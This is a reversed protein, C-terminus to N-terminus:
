SSATGTQPVNALRLGGLEADFVVGDMFGAWAPDEDITVVANLATALSLGTVVVAPSQSELGQVEVAKIMYTGASAPVQVSTGTVNDLLLQAAGWMVGALAPSYRITYHSFAVGSVRDWALTAQEGLVSIRFNTVDPPPTLLELLPVAASTTWGSATGDAFLCRVRFWWTGPELDGLLTQTRPAPVTDGPQWPGLQSEDSAEVEFARIRGFRPVRWLLQAAARPRGDEGYRVAERVTLDTPPLALPDPPITIQSDYPPIEGQDAAGIAPADDVLTLKAALDNEPEVAYVRLVVSERDAEGFLALDGPDPLAANGVLQLTRSEGPVTTVSRLLSEGDALRFRVAYAGGDAQTITEDLTVTQPLAASVSRVRAARIGFRPVDHTVRVRDGRTCVLGEFDVSLTFLEPRLRAQAIHFRGHRWILDPDTVGPFEIGEFRTATEADYGDDYVIREDQLWGQLANVFRVRWGHPFHKYVRSGSFGRSNRPTFHQVVPASPDDFIVGQRGDVVTPSARGASAVDALAEMVSGRADRVFDFTFGEAANRAWWAELSALDLHADDLPRANAPGQCIWRYLDAPNRSPTDEVWGSGDFATVRSTCVGNFTELTGNLQATARIRLATVALPIPYRIPPDNRLGRLASWTIDDQWLYGSDTGAPTARRFSVEYQPGRAVAVRGGRRLLDQKKSRIVLSPLATWDTAGVARYRGEITITRYEFTGNKKFIRYVGQPAVFDWAIEDVEASTTRTFWELPELEVSLQEQFVQGPYLTPAPDDPYGAYTQVEVDAYSSLPTEGIKLAEISLPGYGWVFICRLYEQDGVIETYPRGALRPYVRHRGLVVPIPGFPDAENRIGGISYTQSGGRGDELKPPRVPFLANLLLNGIIGIGAAVAGAAIQAGLTGLLPTLYPALFATAALAAVAILIGLIGRLGGRPVPKFTVWTGAKPRLRPWLAPPVPQGELTAVLEAAFRAARRSGYAKEALEAISLGAPLELTIRDGALPHLAATVTVSEATLVEGNIAPLAPM